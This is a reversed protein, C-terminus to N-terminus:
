AYSVERKKRTQFIKKRVDAIPMERKEAIERTTMNNLYKDRLLDCDEDVEIEDDVDITERPDIRHDVLNHGGVLNFM